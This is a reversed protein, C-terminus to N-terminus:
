IPDNTTLPVASTEVEVFGDRVRVPYRDLPGPPPGAAVEGDAYYVGGHCPCMFLMAEEVWRVPCGLHRCNISFAIFKEDAERRLWAGTLATKGAWPKPSADEFEVSVTSGVKFQSVPGVRRWVRKPRKFVPALMMGLVPVTMMAGIVAALGVSLLTFFSRRDEDGHESATQRCPEHEM